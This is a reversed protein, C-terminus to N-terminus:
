TEAPVNDGTFGALDGDPMQLKGMYEVWSKIEATEPTFHNTFSKKSYCRINDDMRTVWYGVYVKHSNPVLRRDVVIYPTGDDLARIQGILKAIEAINEQTVEVAEVIFPKRVFKNFEM